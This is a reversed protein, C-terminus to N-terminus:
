ISLVAYSEGIHIFLVNEKKEKVANINNLVHSNPIKAVNRVAKKAAFILKKLYAGYNLIM